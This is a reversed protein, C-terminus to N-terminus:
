RHFENQTVRDGRDSGFIWISHVFELNSINQNMAFCGCGKIGNWDSIRQKDCHNGGCTTSVVYSQNINLTRENLVFSLSRDSELESIIPVSQLTSPRKMLILPHPTKVLPADGNMRNEIAQPAMIRIFTGITMTGDDRYELNRDFLVNNSNKFEM